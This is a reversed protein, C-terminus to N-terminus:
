RGIGRLGEKLLTKGVGIGFPRLVRELIALLCFRLREYGFRAAYQEAEQPEVVIHFPVNDKILSDPTTCNDWRGKSPIYVPFQPQNSM